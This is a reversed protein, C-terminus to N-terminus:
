EGSFIVFARDNGSIRNRDDILYIAKNLEEDSLESLIVIQFGLNILKKVIEPNDNVGVKYAVMQINPKFTKLLDLNINDEIVVIAKKFYNLQQALKKEDYFLDARIEIPLEPHDVVSYSNPIVERSTSNNYRSGIHVTKFPIIFDIGLLKFVANAIEEPMITNISKPSEQASYSPKKNGVRKYGEFVIQREKSGFYAGANGAQICSYLTVMPVNYSSALHACFSDPSLVLKANKILFALQHMNTQGKLDVVRKFGQEKGGGTQVIKINLNSLIPTLLDLVDQFYDFNKSPFKSEANFIIYDTFPLPFYSEYIYSDSIKSSTQHAYNKLLHM